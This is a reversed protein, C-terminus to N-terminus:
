KGRRERDPNETPRWMPKSNMYRSVADKAVDSMPRGESAALLRLQQHSAADLMLRVQKDSPDVKM